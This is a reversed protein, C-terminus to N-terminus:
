VDELNKYIDLIFNDQNKNFALLDEYKTFRKLIRLILRNKPSTRHPFLTVEFYEEDQKPIFKDSFRIQTVNLMPIKLEESIKLTSFKKLIEEAPKKVKLIVNAIIEYFLFTSELDYGLEPLIKMINQSLDLVYEPVSGICNLAPASYNVQVEVNNQENKLIMVVPSILSDKSIAEKNIIYGTENKEFYDQLKNMLRQPVVYYILKSGIHYPEYFEVIDKINMILM